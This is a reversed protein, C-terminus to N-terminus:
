YWRGLYLNKDFNSALEPKACMGGVTLRCVIWATWAICTLVMMVITWTSFKKSNESSM